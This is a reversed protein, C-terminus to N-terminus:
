HQFGRNKKEKFWETAREKLQKASATIYKAPMEELGIELLFDKNM